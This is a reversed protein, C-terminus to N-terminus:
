EAGEGDVNTAREEYPLLMFNRPVKLQEALYCCLLTLTRYHTGQKRAGRCTYQDVFDEASQHTSWGSTKHIVISYAASMEDGFDSRKGNSYFPWYTSQNAANPRAEM